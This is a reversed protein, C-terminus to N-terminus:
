SRWNECGCYQAAIPCGGVTNSRLQGEAVEEILYSARDEGVRILAEKLPVGEGLAATFQEIRVKVAREVHDSYKDQAKEM